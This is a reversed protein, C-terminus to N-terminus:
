ADLDLEEVAQVLDRSGPQVEMPATNGKVFLTKRGVDVPPIGDGRAETPSVTAAPIPRNQVGSGCGAAALSIAAVTMIFAKRGM